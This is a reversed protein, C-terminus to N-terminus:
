GDMAERQEFAEIQRALREALAIRGGKRVILHRKELSHLMPFFSNKNIDAGHITKIAAHLDNSSAMWPTPAGRLVGLIMDSQSIAGKPKFPSAGNSNPKAASKAAQLRALTRETIALEADEKDLAVRQKEIEARRERVLHIDSDSM